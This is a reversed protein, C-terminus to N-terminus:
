RRRASSIKRSTEYAIKRWESLVDPDADISRVSSSPTRRLWGLVATLILCLYHKASTVARAAIGAIRRSLKWSTSAYVSALEQKSLDLEAALAKLRLNGAEREAQVDGALGKIVANQAVIVSRLRRLRTDREALIAHLEVIESKLGSIATVESPTASDINSVRTDREIANLKRLPSFVGTPTREGPFAGSYADCHQLREILNDLDDSSLNFAKKLERKSVHAYFRTLGDFYVFEYGLKLLVSEWDASQAASLPLASEVVILWPRAGSQLLSSLVHKEIDEVNIKLWYTDRRGIRDFLADEFNHAYAGSVLKRGLICLYYTVWALLVISRDQRFFCGIILSDGRYSKKGSARRKFPGMLPRVTRIGEKRAIPEVSYRDLIRSNPLGCAARLFNVEGPL